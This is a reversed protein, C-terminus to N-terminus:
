SKKTYLCIINSMIPNYSPHVILRKAQIKVTDPGLLSLNKENLWVETANIARTTFCHLATLVLKNSILTGGCFHIASGNSRREVLAVVWPFQSKDTETGNVVYQDIGSKEQIPPPDQGCDM